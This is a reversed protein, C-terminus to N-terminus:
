RVFWGLINKMEKRSFEPPNARFIKESFGLLIKRLLPASNEFSCINDNEFREGKM